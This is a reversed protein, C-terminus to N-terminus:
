NTEDTVGSISYIIKFIKFIIHSKHLKANIIGFHNVPNRLSFKIQFSM